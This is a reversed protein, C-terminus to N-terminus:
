QGKLLFTHRNSGRWNLYKLQINNNLVLHVKESVINKEKRRLVGQDRGLPSLTSLSRGDDGDSTKLELM